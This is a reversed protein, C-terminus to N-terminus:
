VVAIARYDYIHPFLAAGRVVTSQENDELEQDTMQRMVLKIQFSSYAYPWNADGADNPNTTENLLYEFDRYDKTNSSNSFLGPTQNELQYWESQQDANTPYVFRAYVDVFTGAPRYASLLVKLGEAEFGEELIVERSIYKSTNEEAPSIFYEYANIMSLDTDVLPTTASFGNNTLEARIIFDDKVSGEAINSKSNITRLNNLLYTNSADDIDRDIVISDVNNETIIDYLVLNSSSKITNDILIQPQIYSIDRNDITGITATAGSVLGTIVDTAEFRADQIASSDKLHLRNPRTSNYYSVRGGVAVKATAGTTGSYPWPKDITLTTNTNLGVTEEFVRVIRAIHTNTGDTISVYGKAIFETSQGITISQSGQTVTASYQNTKVVYVLEDAQFAGIPTTLTLFEPNNPVLNIYSSGTSQFDYRRLQFKIDEDQYSKWASDNTSTFLVGDGWDNTIPAKQIEDTGGVKATWILYDPSNGDPIVVFCYEKEVNMKIPNSFRITTATASDDSVNVDAAKLYKRGFPLVKQSPYGNVVERIEVTIGTTASKSKFFLDLESVYVTTAGNAQSARIAFTQAIPDTPAPRQISREIIERDVDFDVTRTTANLETKEVDFNYARYTARSSSTKAAQLSDYSDVDAIELTNEGVYFTEAPIEFVALLTGTSDAFVPTGALGSTTEVGNNLYTTTGKVVNRGEVTSDQDDIGTDILAGPYIYQNVDQGEFFFYHRAGPRLGTIAIGVERSAVFPTMTFDTIFNGVSQTDIVSEATLGLVEFTSTQTVTRNRRVGSFTTETDILRERTLPIFEQINDVLDTIVSDLDIEINVAPAQTVDYGVDFAPFLSTKGQYNYFNTVCNRFQTAYQQDFLVVQTGTNSISAIDDYSQFGVGAEDSSVIMDIPYQIVSPTIVTRTKDVACRFEPDIINAVTLDRCADVLIGTKFRDLGQADPIFVDKSKLELLSLSVTTVLRDIKKNIADIDKMTYTKNSVDFIKIPNVGKVSLANGPVSIRSIPYLNKLLPRSPTESEAGKFISIDGYEDIVVNDIRSLYYEQKSIIQHDTAIPINTREVSVPPNLSVVQAGTSSISYAVTPAAYPRFDLCNRLDYLTGDRSEFVRLLNTSTGSYSNVSLYGSGSVSSRSLVKVKIRISTGDTLTEGIKLRLFSLDYFHDKQNNVLVFKGTIDVEPGSTPIEFVELLKIANPLGIKAINGTEEYTSRVFVDLETLTDQSVGNIREDYYVYGPSGPSGVPETLNVEIQTGDPVVNTEVSSIPAITSNNAVAVINSALPFRGQVADPNILIQTATTDVRLRRRVVFSAEQVSKLSDKGLDFIRGGENLGYLTGAPDAGISTLPTNQFFTPSTNEYGALKQVNYVYLRGPSLSAVSASGIITTNGTDSVPANITLSYETGDLEFQDIVDATDQYAYTFYQGYSLGTSQADKIQTSTTGEIPLRKAAINRIERGFVYAKGPEVVASVDGADNEEVRVKLGSVVYNGSEEYTRRALETGISNFETLDRIRVAEGNKYRILAFFDDPEEDSAIATLQPVLQLRDAGPANENNFGSANDLLSADQNSNVLNEKVVFGVSVNNPQIALPSGDVVVTGNNPDPLYKSVVVFQADVFIFHGRQYIVGEECSVGFSSGAHDAVNAVTVSVNSVPVQTTANIIQLAEGQQFEKDEPNTGTNLYKIFFTKLDPAQTEFGNATSVIEARLGSSSGEIIYTTTDSPNFISPDTFTRNDSLKVYKIDDRATLNVGTIITGEKYINSGFREVQNQLISQLQTLERAQVARAPRFLIRNFQKDEDYDDYYPDVNLDTNIGM